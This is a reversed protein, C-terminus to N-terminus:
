KDFSLYDRWELDYQRHRYSGDDQAEYLPAITTINNSIEQLANILRDIDQKENYLSISARVMGRKRNIYATQRDVPIDELNLEWLSQKLMSSVYPHACFCENRTAIMYYDNLIASLLGHDINNHNFAVAGARLNDAAGYVTIDPLKNLETLLSNVLKQDHKHVKQMGLNNLDQMVRALSIAGVINPTGSQERYPFVNSLEYDYYSVDTVSGGGLDQGSMKELMTKKAILVGPSGPAYMKHGSFVFFDPSFRTELEPAENLSIPMHVVTQAADVLVAVGYQHALRTIEAFPNIIGTVNSVASFALYSIEGQYENLLKELQELDIAGQKAGEGTLSFYTVTNGFQRHPLDNAHHEMASVLVRTKNSDFEAMGRAVRNIGATTGSGTFIVTYIDPNANFFTLIKESAWSLAKTTVQASAHVYSHTNSYHPLLEQATEIATSMALPSAAGDLHTRRTLEGDATTYRTDAGIFKPKHM